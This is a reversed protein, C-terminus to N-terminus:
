VLRMTYWLFLPASPFCTLLSVRALFLKRHAMVVAMLNAYDPHRDCLAFTGCFIEEDEGSSSLVPCRWGSANRCARKQLDGLMPLPPELKTKSIKVPNKVLTDQVKNEYSKYIDNDM